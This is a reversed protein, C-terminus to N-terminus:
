AVKVDALFSELEGRLDASYRSLDAAAALVEEAAADATAAANRVSGISATVVQTGQAARQANHVIEATAADQREVSASITGTIQNIELITAAITEIAAVAEQTAAQAEGIQASIDDTAKATQNALLKVEAAVIAFGRGAEGARAAEITANLALLNTQAAIANILSVVDGIRQAKAALAHVISDTRNAEAVAKTAIRSSQAMQRSIEALSAGLEEAAEAVSRVNASATEAAKAVASSEQKTQEASMSTTRATENMAAAAASLAEALAGVKADFARTLADLREARRARTEQELEQQARFRNALQANEKFVLMARALMGIEDARETGRVEAGLDGNALRKMASAMATIPQAISLGLSWALGLGLLLTALAALVMLLSTATILHHANRDAAHQQTEAATRIAAAAAGIEDAQRRMTGNILKDLEQIIDHARHYTEAYDSVFGRVQEFSSQFAVARLAPDLADLEKKLSDFSQNARVFANEDHRGVLKNAWLSMDLLRQLINDVTVVAHRGDMRLAQARLREFHDRIQEGVPDLVEFLLKIEERKLAAARDFGEVYIGFDQKIQRLRSRNQPERIRALGKDIRERIRTITKEAKDASDERGALVFEAVEHWLVALDQDIERTIEVSDIHYSYADLNRAIRGFSVFCIFTLVALCLLPCLFALFVKAKIAPYAIRRLIM